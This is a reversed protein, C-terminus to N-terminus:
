RPYKAKWAVISSRLLRADSATETSLPEEAAMDVDKYRANPAQAHVDAGESLLFEAMKRKGMVVAAILPTGYPGAQLNIQAGESLLM